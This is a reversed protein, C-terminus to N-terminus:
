REREWQAKSIKLEGSERVFDLAFRYTASRPLFQDLGGAQKPVGKFDVRFTAWGGDAASQSQLERVTIDISNYGFLYRRLEREVDARGLYTTSLSDVVQSADRNEAASVVRDITSVVPDKEACAALFILACLAPRLACSLRSWTSRHGAGQARRDREMGRHYDGGRM